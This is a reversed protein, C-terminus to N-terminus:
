NNPAGADIWKKIQTIKCDSLKTGNKPMASYGPVHNVAGYLKGNLAVAQVGAHTTLNIGGSPAAGSHCGQCQNTIIPKVAGTYTYVTTDCATNCGTTNQAGEMIWQRIVAIQEASLLTNPPPPMIKDIDNETIVDYVESAGPNNPIINENNSTMISNYSTLVIGEQQTIADHCGSKACNSQFIPLVESEFCITTDEPNPNPNTTDIPNVPNDVLLPHHKCSSIALISVVVLIPLLAKLMATGSQNVLALSVQYALKAQLNSTISTNQKKM